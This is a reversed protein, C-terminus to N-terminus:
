RKNQFLLLVNSKYIYNVFENSEDDKNYDQFYLKLTWFKRYLSTIRQFGNKEWFSSSDMSINQMQNQFVHDYWNHYDHLYWYFKTEFNEFQDHLQNNELIMTSLKREM